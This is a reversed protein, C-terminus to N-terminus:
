ARAFPSVTPGLRKSLYLMRADVSKDLYATNRMHSNFDMDGWSAFAETEFM